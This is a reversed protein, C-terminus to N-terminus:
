QDNRRQSDPLPKRRLIEFPYIVKEVDYHSQVYSDLPSIKEFTGMPVNRYHGSFFALSHVAYEPIRNREIMDKLLKERLSLPWFMDDAWVSGYAPTTRTLFYLMPTNNYALFYDRLKVKGDLYRLLEDLARVEEPAAYIGKLKAHTFPESLKNVDQGFYVSRYYHNAGGVLFAAAALVLAAPAASRRFTESSVPAPDHSLRKYAEIMGVAFLPTIGQVSAFLGKGSSFGYIGAATFGWILAVTRIIDLQKLSTPDSEGEHRSFLAWLALPVTFSFVVPPFINQFHVLSPRLLVAAIFFVSLFVIPVLALVLRDSIISKKKQIMSIAYYLFGLLLLGYPAVRAYNKLLTGFKRVVGKNVSAVYNTSLLKYGQIFDPWLGSVIVGAVATAVIIGATVAVIVSPMFYFNRKDPSYLAIGIGALPVCVMLILTSYSFAALGLMVGGGVSFLIRFLRKETTLAVLWSTLSVLCFVSSLLDYGPSLIGFFNNSFFMIGCLLAAFFPPTYRSLLLFFLLYAGLQLSVGLFRLQLLSIDPFVTFVLSLLVNSQTLISRIEDRFPMDGLAFRMAASVYLGEDGLDVGKTAHVYGFGFLVVLLCVSLLYQAKKTIRISAPESTIRARNNDLVFM